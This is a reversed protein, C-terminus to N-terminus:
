ADRQDSLRSPKGNRRNQSRFILLWRRHKAGRDGQIQVVTEELEKHAGLAAIKPVKKELQAAAKGIGSGAGTVLM